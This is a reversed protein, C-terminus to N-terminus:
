FAIKLSFNVSRAYPYNLGREQKVSSLHMIDNMGLTLRMMSLHLADTVSSDFDYGLELSNWSLANYDQVFRSTPRTAVIGSRGQTLAKFQANDGPKKWRDTLVRKDVNNALVNVNEVKDVLTQNYRQGGFEYMFSAFLSFGRYTFNFGVTGQASPDTNGLVVQDSAIWKNTLRGDKRIYIEEGNSPSIGLSRVGWISNLSGGEEYQLYPITVESDFISANEFKALVRENYAKLSESIKLIKNKNHALNANIYLNMDKNRIAHIRLDFEFGRNSVEGINSKYFSFGTSIPITVDTVLDITKKDYYAGKLYVFNNFFAIEGGIDLMNTTEWTLDPNGLAILMVGAGTKYWEDTLIRYSTRAAYAPFNVKGTQGFSGRIKLLDICGINTLFDFKHLNIGLGVSWFSAYRRDAGFASSGDVRTSADLLYIDKFSYNLTALFGVLRSTSESYTTKDKQEKAYEPSSLNGAPFGRYVAFNSNSTTEKVSVGVLANILHNRIAGNYSLTFNMDYTFGKGNSISLEGSELNDLSLVVTNKQSLPDLFKKGNSTNRTLSVQGKLLLNSFINWNISLNNIWEESSSKDFNSLTAEYLPNYEGGVKTEGFTNLTKLYMGDEDKIVQYPLQKTYDSFTGYPSEESKTMHFSINNRISLYKYIYQFFFEAGVRNRFSGKMVGNENTYQLDLGYRVNEDGGDVYLSHKHNLVTRLPKSLWYTDVGSKVAALKDYYETMLTYEDLAGNKEPDSVFCDALRETELKERANMLNYDSLDPMTIDSVFNYAVNLKGFQPTVTTIVVVGNAARSGYLATAAADKLITISEIRNPDYDYLKTVSIEFGDMIFTPLNPNDVLNSKSLPDRDLQKTASIGSEGRIYVEPVANPDSGWANNEKIRFSPDFAQIAKIVNTKSVKLLDDKKVTVSNGTFSSSRINNYGTVVVEELKEIDEELVVNIEKQNVVKVEKSVMGIFSFILTIDEQDPLAIKYVGTTDTVVGISTGKILVTVGPLPTKKSDMVKGKITRTKKQQFSPTEKIIIMGNEIEAVCGTGKLAESLVDSLLANRMKVTINKVMNMKSYDYLFGMDCQSKIAVILEEIDANKLDVTVRQNQSHVEANLGWNFVLLFICLHKMLLLIKRCWRKQFPTCQKGRKEMFKRQLILCDFLSAPKNVHCSFIVTNEQKM